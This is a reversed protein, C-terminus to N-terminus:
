DSLEKKNKAILEEEQQLIWRTLKQSIEDSMELFEVGVSKNEEEIRIIKAQLYNDDLFSLGLQLQLSKDERLDNLSEVKMKLGVISIDLMIASSSNNDKGSFYEIEKRVPVRFFRRRQIRQVRGKSVLILKSVDKIQKVEVRVKYLADNGVFCLDLIIGIRIFEIESFNNDLNLLAVEVQNDNVTIVEAEVKTLLEQHSQNSSTLKSLKVKQGQELYRDL